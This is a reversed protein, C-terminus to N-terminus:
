VCGQPKMLGSVKAAKKAPGEPFLAYLEKIDVGGVKNIRRVTPVVGKEKFDQRMFDIVKWHGDTLDIIGEEKAIEVAIEKSWQEPNTMFGDTDVEISIGAITKSPM